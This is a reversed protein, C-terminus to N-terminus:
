IVGDNAVTLNITGSEDSITKGPEKVESNRQHIQWSLSEQSEEIRKHNRLNKLM